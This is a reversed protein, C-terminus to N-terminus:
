RQAAVSEGDWGPELSAFEKLRRKMYGLNEDAVEAQLQLYVARKTETPMHSAHLYSIVTDYMTPVYAVAPKSAMIPDNDEM